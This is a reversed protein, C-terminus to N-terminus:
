RLSSESYKTSLLCKKLPDSYAISRPEPDPTSLKTKASADGSILTSEKSLDSAATLHVPM